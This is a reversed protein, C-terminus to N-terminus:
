LIFNTSDVLCLCLPSLGMMFSRGPTRAYLKLSCLLGSLSHAKSGSPICCILDGEIHFKRLLDEAKKKLGLNNQGQKYPLPTETIQSVGYKEMIQKRRLYILWRSLIDKDTTEKLNSKLGDARAKLENVEKLLDDVQREGRRISLLYERDENEHWVQPWKGTAIREAEKLLRIAHYFKKPVPTPGKGKIFNHIQSLAYSM